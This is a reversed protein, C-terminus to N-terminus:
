TPEASCKPFSQNRGAAASLRSVQGMAWVTFILPYLEEFYWLRAFYLGIPSPATRTGRETSRILWDAGSQVASEIDGRAGGFPLGRSLCGALAGTALATEEVGSLVGDGGWGGDPNMARALWAAGRVAMTSCCEREGAQGTSSAIPSEEVSANERVSACQRCLADLVRATGYVRNENAGARTRPDSQVNENGFWLPSWYGESSQSRALFDLAAATARDAQDSLDAPLRGRWAGWAAVAHATLDPANRDFPLRGWGRCFTPIGGDRNQLGLLWRIGAEIAPGYDQGLGRLAVLAGATDDADPVGGPLDTWAWGGPSAGTYPHETSYQQALLWDGIRRCQELPLSEAVEGGAALASVSQTTV